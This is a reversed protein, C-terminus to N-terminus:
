VHCPFEYNSPPSLNIYWKVCKFSVRKDKKRQESNLPYNAGLVGGAIIANKRKIRKYNVAVSESMTMVAISSM